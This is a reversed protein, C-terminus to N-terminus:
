KRLIKANDAAVSGCSTEKPSKGLLGANLWRIAFGGIGLGIAIALIQLYQWSFWTSLFSCVAMSAIATLSSLINGSVRASAIGVLYAPASIINVLFGMALIATFGWLQLDLRGLWFWSAVPAALLTTFIIMSGRSSVNHSTRRYLNRAAQVDNALLRTMAPMTANAGALIIQRPLAVLKYALEYLGVMELGGFRAVLLKSLPEFLGNLITAFQVKLSFSLMERLAEISARTPMLGGHAGCDKRIASLFLGWAISVMVLHQVIQAWALGALGFSPVLPVVLFLQTLSGMIVILASQYGRHVGTLGALILGSVNSLIFVAFMLPLVAHVTDQMDVDIPNVLPMLAKIIVYGVAALATFISINLVLSSDMYTRIKPGEHRADCLAIFRAAAASMGVDGLRIIQIWSMLTSWLGLSAIGEAKIVLRYSILILVLNLTIAFISSIVNRRLRFDVTM